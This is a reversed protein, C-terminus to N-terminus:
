LPFMDRLGNYYDRSDDRAQQLDQYLQVAYLARFYHPNSNSDPAKIFPKDGNERLSKDVLATINERDREIIVANRERGGKEVLHLGICVGKEDRVFDSPKINAISSRRMGCARVFELALRNRESFSTDRAALGRNNTINKYSRNSLGFDRVTYRSDLLKNIASIDKSNTYGSRADGGRSDLFGQVHERTIEGINKVGQGKLYEGFLNATKRYTEATQISHIGEARNANTSDNKVKKEGIRLLNDIRKNLQMKINGGNKRGM